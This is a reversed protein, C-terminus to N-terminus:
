GDDRSQDSDESIRSDEIYSSDSSNSEMEM